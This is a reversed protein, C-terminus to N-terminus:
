RPLLLRSYDEKGRLIRVRGLDAIQCELLQERESDAGEALVLNAEVKSAKATRDPETPAPVALWRGYKLAARSAHLSGGALDSQIMVVGESMGAQTRDRRVFYQPIPDVGFAYETVLAGGAEVIADALRRNSAPAVTQLGHALVAVTQGGLAVCMEHAISDCGIALGSVICAKEGVLFETIRKAILEGHRTPQRTGIVAVTHTSPKPLSGRVFLIFPDDKTAALLSPYGPDAASFIEVSAREAADIQRLAADQAAKWASKDAIARDIAPIGVTQDSGFGLHELVALGQRALARLKAPGVGRLMSYALLTKTASTTM